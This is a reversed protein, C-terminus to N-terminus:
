PLIKERTSVLEQGYGSTPPAYMLFLAMALKSLKRESTERLLRSRRERQFGGSEAIVTFVGPTEAVFKGEDNIM